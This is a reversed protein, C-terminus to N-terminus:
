SIEINIMFFRFLRKNVSTNSVICPGHILVAAHPIDHDLAPPLLGGRFLAEALPELAQPLGWCCTWM